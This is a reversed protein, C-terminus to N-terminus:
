IKPVGTFNRFAVTEEHRDTRGDARLLEAGVPRIKMFNTVQPSNEFIHGSFELKM